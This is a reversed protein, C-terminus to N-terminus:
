SSAMLDPVLGRKLMSVTGVNPPLDSKYVFHRFDNIPPGNQNLTALDPVQNFILTFLVDSAM